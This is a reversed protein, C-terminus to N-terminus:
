KILSDYVQVDFDVVIFYLISTTKFEFPKSKATNTM